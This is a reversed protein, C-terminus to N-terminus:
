KEGAYHLKGDPTKYIPTGKPVGPTKGDATGHPMAGFPLGPAIGVGKKVAEMDSERPPPMGAQQGAGWEAKPVKNMPIPTNIIDHTAKMGADMLRKYEPNKAVFDAQIQQQSPYIDPNANKWQNFFDNYASSIKAATMNQVAKGQLMTFPDGEIGANPLPLFSPKGYTSVMTTQEDRIQKSTDLARILTDQLMKGEPTNAFKSQRISNIISARDTASQQENSTGTSGTIQNNRLKSLSYSTKNDQGKINGDQWTYVGAPIGAAIRQQETVSSGNSQSSSAIDQDFKAISDSATRGSSLNQSLTKSVLARTKPDLDFQKIKELDSFLAESLTGVLATHGLIGNKQKESELFDKQNTEQNKKDKLYQLSNEYTTYRGIGRQKVQDPTLPQNSQQDFYTQRGLANTDIRVLNGEADTKVSSIVKGGTALDRAYAGNGTIWHLLIDKASAGNVNQKDWASVIEQKGKLTNPGGADQIPKIFDNFAKDGKMLVDAANTAAVAVPHYPNNKAVDRMATPNSTSLAQDFQTSPDPPVVVSAVPQSATDIRNPDVINPDAM